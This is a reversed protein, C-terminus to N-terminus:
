PHCSAHGHVLAHPEPGHDHRELSMRAAAARDRGRQLVIEVVVDYDRAPIWLFIRSQYLRRTNDHHSDSVSSLLRHMLARNTGRVGAVEAGRVHEDCQLLM